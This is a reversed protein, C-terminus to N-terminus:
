AAGILDLQTEEPAPLATGKKVAAVGRTTTYYDIEDSKEDLQVPRILQLEVLQAVTGEPVRAAYKYGKSNILWYKRPFPYCRRAELKGGGAVIALVRSQGPNLPTVIAKM